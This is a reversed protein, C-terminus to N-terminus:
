IVYGESDEVVRQSQADASRGEEVEEAVKLNGRQLDVYTPPMEITEVELVSVGPGGDDHLVYNVVRRAVGGVTPSSGGGRRRPKGGGGRVSAASSSSPPKGGASSHNYVVTKLPTYGGSPSASYREGDLVLPTPQYYELRGDPERPYEEPDDGGLADDDIVWQARRRRRRRLFYVVLVLVLILAGVFGGVAGGAIAATNM